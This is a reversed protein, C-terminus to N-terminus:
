CSSSHSSPNSEIQFQEVLTAWNGSNGAAVDVSKDPTISRVGDALNAARTGETYIGVVLTHTHSQEDGHVTFGWPVDCPGSHEPEPCLLRAIPEQLALAEDITPLGRVQIEYVGRDDKIPM